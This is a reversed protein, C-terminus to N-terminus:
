GVGREIAADLSALAARTYEWLSSDQYEDAPIYGYEPDPTIQNLHWQDHLALAERAERMVALADSQATHRTEAARYGATFADAIHPREFCGSLTALWEEYPGHYIELGTV